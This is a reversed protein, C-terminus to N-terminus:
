GVPGVKKVRATWTPRVAADITETVETIPGIKATQKSLVHLTKNQTRICMHEALVSHGTAAM